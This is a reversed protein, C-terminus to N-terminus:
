PISGCRDSAVPMFQVGETFFHVFDAMTELEIHDITKVLAELTRRASMSLLALTAGELSANGVQVIREDPLDPILGIHRASDLNLRRAFGGALYFVEIADLPIGFNRPLLHLGATNAAKAQALHSIDQETLYVQNAADLVFRHSRDTLRGLHNMRRSALLEALVDILGSGCIGVPQGGGIVALETHGRGDMRVHEVAGELAPMGCEIAGGEFAPGAPCSAAHIRHGHGIVLETNTGIDMLAVTRQETAMDIALLCAATDAGVHCGVLPLGYVRARPHIPLRSRRGSIALSTSPRKGALYKHETISRFPMQGLGRVDLGFFLDRMVPNGAVTVEYISRCDHDLAELAHTLYGVLTRRLLQGRHTTDYQVRALVNSGAFRQPNELAETALIQGTELDVLRMVVTTTGLDIALGLIPGTSRAIETSDLVIRHGARRVAPDVARQRTLSPLAVASQEIQLTGRRLRRCRVEGDAGRVRAQCALRFGGGLHLEAETPPTLQDMGRTVEVLCERCRGQGLCSSTVRLDLQDALAFLTTGAAVRAKAQDFQVTVVM